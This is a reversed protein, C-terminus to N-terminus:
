QRDNQEWKKKLYSLADRITHPRYGLKEKALNINLGGRLPREAQQQLQDTTIPSILDIPQEFIEAITMAFEYRNVFNEGALHFLGLASNEMVLKTGLALDEALTPNNYQDTVVKIQKKKRLNELVWLFFNRKVNKGTGFIVCTRLVTFLCEAERLTNESALKSKGYYGLPMQKDQEAYPGERGDFVYDTSYHILHANYRRALKALNEVGKVNVKWCLEKEKECGDVNTYSAANIIVEPQFDQILEKCHDMETIDLSSYEWIDAPLNSQPEVGSGLIKYKDKLVQILAQGLLGNVGTILIRNM